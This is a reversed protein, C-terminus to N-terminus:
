VREPPYFLTVAIARPATAVVYWDNPNLVVRENFRAPRPAGAGGQSALLEEIAQLEDVIEVQYRRNDEEITLLQGPNVRQGSVTDVGQDGVFVPNAAASTVQVVISEAQAQQPLLPQAALAVNISYNIFRRYVVPQRQPVRVWGLSRRLPGATTPSPLAGPGVPGPTPQRDRPYVDPVTVTPWINIRKSV